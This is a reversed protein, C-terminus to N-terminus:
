KSKEWNELPSVSVGTIVHEPNAQIYARIKLCAQSVSSADTLQTETYSNKNPDHVWVYTKFRLSSTAPSM